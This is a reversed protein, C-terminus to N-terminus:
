NFHGGRARECVWNVVLHDYAALYVPRCTPMMATASFLKQSWFATLGLDFYNCELVQSRPVSSAVSTFVALVILELALFNFGCLWGFLFSSSTWILVSIAVCSAFWFNNCAVLSFLAVHRTQLFGHVWLVAMLFTCLLHRGMSVACRPFLRVVCLPLSLSISFFLARQVKLVRKTEPHSNAAHTMCEDRERERERECVCVCVSDRERQSYVTRRQNGKIEYQITQTNMSFSTGMWREHIMSFPTHISCRSLTERLCVSIRPM